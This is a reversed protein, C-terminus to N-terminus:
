TAAALQLLRAVAGTEKAEEWSIRKVQYGQMEILRQRQVEASHNPDLSYKGDGDCEIILRASPIYIDAYFVGGETIIQHQLLFEKVGLSVLDARVFSELPSEALPNILAIRQLAREAASASLYTSAAKSASSLLASLASRQENTILRHIHLVKRVLADAGALADRLSRTGLIDLLLFEPALVPLGNVEHLAEVPVKAQMRHVPVGGRKGMVGVRSSSRRKGDTFRMEIELPFDLTPIDYVLCAILGAFCFEPDTRNATRKALALMRHRFLEWHPFNEPYHYTLGHHIQREIIEPVPHESLAYDTTLKIHKM